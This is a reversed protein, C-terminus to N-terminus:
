RSGGAGKQLQRERRVISRPHVFEGNLGLFSRQGGILFQLDVIKFPNPRHERDQFRLCALNQLLGGPPMRGSGHLTGEVAQHTSTGTIAAFVTLHRLFEIFESKLDFVDHGALVSAFRDGAIKRKRAKGAVMMFTWIQSPNIRLSSPKGSEKM